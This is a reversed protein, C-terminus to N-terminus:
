TGELYRSEQQLSLRLPLNIVMEILGNFRNGSKEIKVITNTNM